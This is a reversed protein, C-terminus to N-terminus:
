GGKKVGESSHTEICSRGVWLEASHRHWALRAICSIDTAFSSVDKKKYWGQNMVPTCAYVTDNTFIHNEVSARNRSCSSFLYLGLTFLLMERM